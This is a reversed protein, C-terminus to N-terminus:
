WIEFLAEGGVKAKRAEKDTLVGKPTSLVLAGHGYRVPLIEHVSKYMRRGPKSIRKVGRIAHMGAESYKLAINLAKHVKKGKKEVEQVMGMDKLKEAVAMKFASYPVSVSAKQIAGANKLRIILDGITDNVM